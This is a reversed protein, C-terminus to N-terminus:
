ELSFHISIPYKQLKEKSKVNFAIHTYKILKRNIRRILVIECRYNPHKKSSINLVLTINGLRILYTKKSWLFINVLCNGSNENDVFLRYSFTWTNEFYSKWNLKRQNQKKHKHSSCFLFEWNQLAVLLFM